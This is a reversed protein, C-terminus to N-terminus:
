QRSSHEHPTDTIRVSLIFFLSKNQENQEKM